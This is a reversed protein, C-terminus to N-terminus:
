PNGLIGGYLPDVEPGCFPAFTCFPGRGDERVFTYVAPDCALVTGCPNIQGVVNQLAGCGLQFMNGAAAAALMGALLGKKMRRM